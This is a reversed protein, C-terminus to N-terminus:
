FAETRPALLMGQIVDQVVKAENPGLLMALTGIVEAHNLPGGETAMRRVGRALEEAYYERSQTSPIRKFANWLVRVYSPVKVKRRTTSINAM